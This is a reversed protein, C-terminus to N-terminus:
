SINFSGSPPRSLPRMAIMATALLTVAMGVFPAYATMRETLSPDMSLIWIGRADKAGVMWQAVNLAAHVGIPAALGGSRVAVVGFLLASPIVGLLVSMWPWGFAVHTLGFAVAIALQAPWLGVAPVLTRLAYGRFGLEEMSALAAYSALMLLMAGASPLAPETFRIPGLTLSLVAMTIGYVVFGIAVGVLLRAISRADADLGVDGLTRKDVRLFVRTMAYIALSAVVGWVVDGFRAPVMGKPISAALLILLYGVLFLAVRAVPRNM